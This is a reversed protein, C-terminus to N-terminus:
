QLQVFFYIQYFRLTPNNEDSSFVGGSLIGQTNWQDIKVLGTRLTDHVRGFSNWGYRVFSLFEPLENTGRSILSLSTHLEDPLYYSVELRITDSSISCSWRQNQSYRLSIAETVSDGYYWRVCVPVLCMEPFPMFNVRVTDISHGRYDIVSLYLGTYTLIHPFRIWLSDHDLREPWGIYGNLRYEFPVYVSDRERHFTIKILTGAYGTPPEVNMINIAPFRSKPANPAFGDDNNCGSPALAILLLICWMM